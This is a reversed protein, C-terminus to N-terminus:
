RLAHLFSAGLVARVKRSQLDTQLALANGSPGSLKYYSTYADRLYKNASVSKLYAPAWSELGATNPTGKLSALWAAAEADGSFASSFAARAAAQSAISERREVRLREAFAPGDAWLETSPYEGWHWGAAQAELSREGQPKGLDEEPVSPSLLVVQM